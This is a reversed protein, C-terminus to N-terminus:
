KLATKQSADVGETNEKVFLIKVTLLIIKIDMLISYNEIYILDLKLKDYPTTNYQGYVQAYGTLGAKVKLRLDFEPMTEAYQKAIEEREPRPGVISMDGKLINFIQPLEDLHLRRIIRGVPTIRDDGKQALRAGEKEANVKMSRFKIINFKAGGRTLREQTYFVPGGDYLKIAAAIVLMLPAAVICGLGSCVIDMIRKILLKDVTIGNNRLLFLPTDFLHIDEAGRFMIDSIKPTVYVRISHAACFKIISNREEDPLDALLVAKHKIVEAEITELRKKGSISGVLTYRDSRDTMKRVLDECPYTGYVLFLKRPPYLKVYLRRTLYAWLIIFIIQAACLKVLPSPSYYSGAVMTIEIFAAAEGFVIAPIHSLIIDRLRMYTIKYGDFTNTLLVVILTYFGIVAWNGRRFFHRQVTLEIQPVYVSYWVYAFSLAEFIVAVMIAVMNVIRKYYENM